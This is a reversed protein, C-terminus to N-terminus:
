GGHAALRHPKWVPHSSSFVDWLSTFYAVVYMHMCSFVPRSSLFASVAVRGPRVKISHYFSVEVDTVM